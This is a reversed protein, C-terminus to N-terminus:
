DGAVFFAWSGDPAIGTRWGLYGIDTGFLEDVEGLPALLELEHPALDASNEITYAWPWDYYGASLAYPLELITALIELPQARGSRELDRWYAAPGGEVEAGFTYRFGPPALAALADYDGAKAAELLAIRKKEVAAPLGSATAETLTDEITTTVTTTQESSGRSSTGPVGGGIGAVLAVAALAIGRLM